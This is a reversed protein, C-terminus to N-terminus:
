MLQLLDSCIFLFIIRCLLDYHSWILISCSTTCCVTSQLGHSWPLHFLDSCIHATINCTFIYTSDLYLPCCKDLHTTNLGQVWHACQSKCALFHPSWPHCLITQSSVICTLSYEMNRCLQSGEHNSTLAEAQNAIEVHPQHVGTVEQHRSICPCSLRFTKRVWFLQGKCLPCTPM